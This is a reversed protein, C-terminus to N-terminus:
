RTNLLEQGVSRGMMAMITEKRKKLSIEEDRREFLYFAASSYKSTM